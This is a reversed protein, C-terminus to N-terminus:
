NIALSSQICEEVKRALIEVVSDDWFLAKLSGPVDGIEVGGQAVTRWGV